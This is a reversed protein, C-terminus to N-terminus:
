HLKAGPYNSVTLNYLAKLQEPTALLPKPAVAGPFSVSAVRKVPNTPTGKVELARISEIATVAIALASRIDQLVKPDKIAAVNAIDSVDNEAVTLLSDIEQLKGSKSSTDAANYDAILKNVSALDSSVKAAASPPAGALTAVQLAIQVALNIYAQIQSANCSATLVVALFIAPFVKQVPSKQLLAALITAVISAAATKPHANIWAQISPVFFYLAATIWASHLTWWQKLHNVM